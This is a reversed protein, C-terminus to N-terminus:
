VRHNRIANFMGAHVAERVFPSSLFDHPFGLEIHSALDLREMQVPSLAWEICVLSDIIQNPKRAGIIPIM